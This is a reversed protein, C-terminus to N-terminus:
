WLSTCSEVLLRQTKQSTMQMPSRCAFNELCQFAFPAARIPLTKKYAQGRLMVTNKAGGKPSSNGYTISLTM